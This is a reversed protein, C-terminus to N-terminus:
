CALSKGDERRATRYILWQFADIHKKHGRGDIHVEHLRDKSINGYKM